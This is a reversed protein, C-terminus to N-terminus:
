VWSSTLRRTCLAPFYGAHGSEGLRAQRFRGVRLTLGRAKSAPWTLAARLLAGSPPVAAAPGPVEALAVGPADRAPRLRSLMRGPGARGMVGKDANARRI